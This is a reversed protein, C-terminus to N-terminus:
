TDLHAVYSATRIEAYIAKTKWTENSQKDRLRLTFELIRQYQYLLYCSHHSHHDDMFFVNITINVRFYALIDDYHYNQKLSPVFAVNIIRMNNSENFVLFITLLYKDNLSYWSQDNTDDRYLNHNGLAHMCCLYQSFSWIM